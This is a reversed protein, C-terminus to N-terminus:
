WVYWCIHAKRAPADHEVYEDGTVVALSEMKKPEDNEGEKKPITTDEKMIGAAMEEDNTSSM